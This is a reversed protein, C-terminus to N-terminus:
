SSTRAKRPVSASAEKCSLGIALFCRHEGIRGKAHFPFLLLPEDFLFVGRETVFATKTGSQRAYIVACKKKELVHHRSKM